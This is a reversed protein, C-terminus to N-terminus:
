AARKNSVINFHYRALPGILRPDASDLDIHYTEFHEDNSEVHAFLDHTDTLFTHNIVAVNEPLEYRQIVYPNFANLIIIDNKKTAYSFYPWNFGYAHYHKEEVSEVVAQTSDEHYCEDLDITDCYISEGLKIMTKLLGKKEGEGPEIISDFVQLIGPEISRVISANFDRDNSSLIDIDRDYDKSTVLYFGQGSDIV